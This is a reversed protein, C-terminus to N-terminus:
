SADDKGEILTPIIEAMRRSGDSVADRWDKAADADAHDSVFKWCVFPIDARWCAAAIAWGEMDVLDVRNTEFWPDRATVFSDGTALVLGNGLVFRDPQFIPGPISGRPSLPEAIMDRQIITGVRYLDPDHQRVSGATGYNVVLDPSHELIAAQTALAANVKGVGTHIVPVLRDLGITENPLAAILIIKRM